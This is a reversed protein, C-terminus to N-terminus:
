TGFVLRGGEVVSANRYVMTGVGVRDRWVRYMVGLVKVHGPWPDGGMNANSVDIGWPLSKEQAEFAKSLVATVDAPGYMASEISIHVPAQSIGFANLRLRAEDAALTDGPPAPRLDLTM